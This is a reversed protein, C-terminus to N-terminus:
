RPSIAYAGDRTFWVADAAVVAAGTDTRYFHDAHFPNFSVRVAHAPFEAPVPAFDGRMFACVKRAGAERLRALTSPSVKFEVGTLYCSESHGQVRGGTRRMSWVHRARDKRAKNLNRYVDYRM